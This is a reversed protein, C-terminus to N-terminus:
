ISNQTSRIVLKQAPLYAQPGGLHLISTQNIKGKTQIFPNAKKRCLKQFLTTPQILQQKRAMTPKQYSCKTAVIPQSILKPGAINKPHFLFYPLLSPGCIALASSRMPPPFKLYLVQKMLRLHQQHGKSVQYCARTPSM